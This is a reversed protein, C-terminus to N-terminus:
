SLFNPNLGSLAVDVQSVLQAGLSGLWVAVPVFYIISSLASLNANKLAKISQNVSTSVTSGKKTINIFNLSGSIAGIMQGQKGLKYNKLITPMYGTMEDIIYVVYAKELIEEIVKRFFSGFVSPYKNTTFNLSIQQNRVGLLHIIEGISGIGKTTPIVHENSFNIGTVGLILFPSNIVTTILRTMSQIFNDKFRDDNVAHIMSSQIQGTLLSQLQSILSLKLTKSTINPVFIKTRFDKLLYSSLAQSVGFGVDTKPAYISSM